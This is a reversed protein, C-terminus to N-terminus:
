AAFKAKHQEFTVGDNSDPDMAPSINSDAATSGM